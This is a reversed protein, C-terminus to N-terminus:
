GAALVKDMYYMSKKYRVELGGCRAEGPVKISLNQYQPAAFRLAMPIHFVLRNPDRVFFVVRSNAGSVAGGTTAAGATELGPLPYINLDINKTAKCINNKKIFEIVTTDAYDTRARSTLVTWAAPPIGIDTVFDNYNSAAYVANLGQNIDALITATSTGATDWAGTTAIAQPISATNFLGTLNKKTSGTFAVVNLFREVMEQAAALRRENLPRRLYATERLEQFSYRYGMPIHGVNRSQEDYQVDAFPMDDGMDSGFDAQGVIDGKEYRISQAWDGAENSIPLVDRFRMPTYQKMYMTAETYALQPITFSTAENADQAVIDLGRGVPPEALIDPHRAFFDRLQNLRNSRMKKEVLENGDHVVVLETKPILIQLSM